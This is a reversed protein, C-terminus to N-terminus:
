GGLIGDGAPAPRLLDVRRPTPMGRRAEITVVARTDVAIVQYDVFRRRRPDWWLLTMEAPGKLPGFTPASGTVGATSANVYRIGRGVQDPGVREHLHGSLQLPACGRRLTEDGVVPTHVLLVDVPDDGDAAACAADALRAGAQELSEGRVSSTGGGVRTALPDSDGLFRIGGVTVPEGDLVVAGAAREQASTTASDHNGDAVVMRAGAPVAHVFTDVCYQEVATGDLTSDGGNVVLQVHALEAARRVVRAMGVNCHLDSVMLVPVLGAAPAGAAARGPALPGAPAAVLPSAERAHWAIDLSREAADYFSGNDRYAELLYQGYGDLVGSLRGTVRVGELATGDFLASTRGAPPRDLSGAASGGVALALVGVLAGAVLRGRRRTVWAALEARRARGLLAGLAVGALVLLVWAIIARAIADLVLLHVADRITEQPAGFFQGYRQVDGSLAAFVDKPTVATLEAPIEEVRVDVGLAGPLGSSRRLTGLPGADVTVTGDATVEYRAEHPGLSGHARATYLGFGAALLGAALLPLAVRVARRLRQAITM